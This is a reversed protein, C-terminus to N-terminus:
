QNLNNDKEELYSEALEYDITLPEKLLEKKNQWKIFDRLVARIKMDM